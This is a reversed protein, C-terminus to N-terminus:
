TVVSCLFTPQVRLEEQAVNCSYAGREACGTGRLWVFLAWDMGCACVGRAVCDSWRGVGGECEGEWAGGERRGAVHRGGPSHVTGGEGEVSEGVPVEGLLLGEGGRGVVSVEGLEETRDALEMDGAQRALLAARM